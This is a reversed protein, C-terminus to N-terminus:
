HVVIGKPGQFGQLYLPLILYNQQMQSVQIGQEGKDGTIGQDGREGKNGRIGVDGQIGKM